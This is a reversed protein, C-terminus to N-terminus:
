DEGTDPNQGGQDGSPQQSGEREQEIERLISLIRAGREISPDLQFALDPVRRIHMRETLRRRFFGAARHLTQLSAKKQEEDGMVSVHVRAFSLDPVAEVATVSILGALRPDKLERRILYSVEERLLENVREIRRSSEGSM